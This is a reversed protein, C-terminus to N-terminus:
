RGQLELKRCFPDKREKARQCIIFKKGEKWKRCMEPILEPPDQLDSSYLTFAEGRVHKLGANSAAIAGWNRSLKMVSINSKRQKWDLMAAYTRDTSGDDVMIFHLNIGAPSLEAEVGAFRGFLADLTDAGNLVPIVVSVTKM